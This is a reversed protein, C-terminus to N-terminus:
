KISDSKCKSKVWIISTSNIGVVIQEEYGLEAMKVKKNLAISTCSIIVIAVIAFFLLWFKEEGSM